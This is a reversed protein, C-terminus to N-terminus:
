KIFKDIFNNDPFKGYYDEYIIKGTEIFCIYKLSMNRAVSIFSEYESETKFEERHPIRMKSGQLSLYIKKEGRKFEIDPHCVSAGHWNSNFDIKSLTVPEFGRDIFIKSYNM